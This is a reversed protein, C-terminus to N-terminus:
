GPIHYDGDDEPYLYLDDARLKYGLPKPKGYPIVICKNCDVGYLRALKKASIFHVDGDRSSVVYGPNLIIRTM